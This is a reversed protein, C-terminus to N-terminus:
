EQAQELQAQDLAKAQEILEKLATATLAGSEAYVVVRNRLIMVAPVSVVQFEEALEKEKDIDVSAFTVEPYAQDLNEIVHAFSKCPACWEAWFDIVVLDNDGVVKDFNAHNLEVISM